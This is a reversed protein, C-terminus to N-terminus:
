RGHGVRGLGFCCFLARTSFRYGWVSCRFCCFLAKNSFISGRRFWRFFLVFGSHLLVFCNFLRLVAGRFGGRASLVVPGARACASAPGPVPAPGAWSRPGTSLLYAPVCSRWFATCGTGPCLPGLSM